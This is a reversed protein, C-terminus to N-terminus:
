YRLLASGWTFGSGFATLLLLDGRSYLGAERAEYMALPVSAATTNGRTQINHFVKEPPLGLRRRV